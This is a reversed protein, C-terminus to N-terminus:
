YNYFIEMKYRVLYIKTDLGYYKNYNYNKHKTIVIYSKKNIKLINEEEIIM